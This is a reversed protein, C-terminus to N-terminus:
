EKYFNMGTERCIVYKSIASRQHSDLHILNRIYSPLFENFKVEMILLPPPLAEVTVLNKNFIDVSNVAASLEKDFTIRVDSVDGIYAERTYDVIVKPKLRESRLYHYFDHYLIAEKEKLFGYDDNLLKQYEDKTLSVSEKCIFEGYRHKRELKIVQDSVNYIRIRLKKRRLTGYNKQHLDRDYLNDFYLSRIHYGRESISFPDPRLVASLKARLIEYEHNHIYYKLEHRFKKHDM